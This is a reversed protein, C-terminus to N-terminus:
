VAKLLKVQIVIFYRMDSSQIVKNLELLIYMFIDLEFSVLVDNPIQIQREVLDLM